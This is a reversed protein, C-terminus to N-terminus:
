QAPMEPTLVELIERQRDMFTLLDAPSLDNLNLFETMPLTYFFDVTRAEKWSSIKKDNYAKDYSYLDETDDFYLISALRYTTEVEFALECRSQVQSVIQYVKHIEVIGSKGPTLAKIINEMYRKLLPLDLRLSQEHLFTQLYMYRGWRMSTEKGFRYYQKGGAEFAMETQDEFDPHYLNTKNQDRKFYKKIRSLLIM